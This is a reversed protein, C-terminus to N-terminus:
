GVFVLAMALSPITKDGIASTDSKTPPLSKDSNIQSFQALSEVLAILQVGDTQDSEALSVENKEKDEAIPEIETPQSTINKKADQSITKNEVENTSKASPANRRESIEKSLVQNFSTPATERANANNKQQPNIKATSQTALVTIPNQM